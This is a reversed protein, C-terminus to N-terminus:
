KSIERGLNHAIDAAVDKPLYRRYEKGSKKSTKVIYCANNRTIFIEYVSGDTERWTFGTKVDPTSEKETIIPSYEKGTRVYTKDQAYSLTCAFLVAFLVIIKKM